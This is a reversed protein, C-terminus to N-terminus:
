ELIRESRWLKMMRWGKRRGEVKKSDELRKEERLCEKQGEILERAKEGDELMRETRMCAKEGIELRRETTRSLRSELSDLRIEARWSGEGREL